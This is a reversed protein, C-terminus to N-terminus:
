PAQRSHHPLFPVSHRRHRPGHCGASFHRLAHLALCYSTALINPNSFRFSSHATPSLFPVSDGGGGGRM